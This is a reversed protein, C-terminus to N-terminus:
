LAFLHDAEAMSILFIGAILTGLQLGGQLGRSINRPLRQVAKVTLVGLFFEHCM